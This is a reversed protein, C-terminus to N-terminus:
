NIIERRSGFFPGGRFTNLVSGLRVMKEGM